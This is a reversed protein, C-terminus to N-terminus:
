RGSKPELTMQTPPTGTRAKPAPYTVQSDSVVAFPTLEHQTSGGSLDLHVVRWGRVVLVDSLIRRHCRSWQAEACMIATRSRRAKAELEAMGAAFEASALHDAYGQFQANTWAGNGSPKSPRRRGGLAVLHLYGISKEALLPELESANTWPVRRSGPYRRVVVLLEVSAQGLHALFEDSRHTSHGITAIQPM